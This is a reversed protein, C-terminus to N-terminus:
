QGPPDPTTPKAPRHLKKAILGTWHLSVQHEKQLHPGLHHGCLAASCHICVADPDRPCLITDDKLCDGCHILHILINSTIKSGCRSPSGKSYNKKVTKKSM